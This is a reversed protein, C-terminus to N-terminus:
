TAPRINDFGGEIVGQAAINNLINEAEIDHASVRLLQAAASKAKPYDKKEYYLNTIKRLANIHNKDISLLEELVNIARLLNGRSMLIMASTYLAGTNSPNLLTLKEAIGAAEDNRNAARLLSIKISLIAGFLIEIVRQAPSPPTIARKERLATRLYRRCEDFDPASALIQQFLDIAYGYNKKRLAAVGKQYLENDYRPNNTTEM